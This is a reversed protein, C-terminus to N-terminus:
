HYAFKMSCALDSCVLSHIPAHSVESGSLVILIPPPPPHNRPYTASVQFLIINYERTIQCRVSADESHVCDVTSPDYPCDILRDETGVCRVDDLVIPGSGQGFFAFSLATADTSSCLSVSSSRHPLM